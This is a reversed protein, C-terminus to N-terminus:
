SLRIKGYEVIETEAIYGKLLEFFYIMGVLYYLEIDGILWVGGDRSVAVGLDM